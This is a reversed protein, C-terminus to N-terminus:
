KVIYLTSNSIHKTYFDWHKQKFLDLQIDLDVDVASPSIFNLRTGKRKVVLWHRPHIFECILPSHSSMMMQCDDSYDHLYQIIFKITKFDLGNEIEDILILSPPLNFEDIQFPIKPLMLLLLLRYIGDSWEIQGIGRDIKEENLMLLDILQGTPQLPLKSFLVNNIFPYCNKFDDIIENFISPYKKQWNLLVYSINTGSDNPKISNPNIDIERSKNASIITIRQFYERLLKITFYDAENISRLALLNEPIFFQEVAKGKLENYLYKDKKSFIIKNNLKVIESFINKGNNPQINIEYTIDDVVLDDIYVNFIFVANLSTSIVKPADTYLTSFFFLLRLLRSKGQANDGILLNFDSIDFKNVEIDVQDGRKEVCEFSKLKLIKNNQEMM